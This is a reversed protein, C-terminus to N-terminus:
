RPKLEDHASNIKQHIDFIKRQLSPDNNLNSAIKQYAHSTTAPSRGGLEKGVAALSCNTEQRILYMAVQRALVIAEDRKRSRLDTPTLQFSNVVAEIILGPTIAAKKPEDGNLNQLAQAALDPSLMARMLKAYAVVRNLAGELTRINEQIQLAIFELVDPSVNLGKQKTKAQLIALRTEFDAPQIDTVLGCEFRSRLQDSLVPISKPPRDSTIAIQRGTSHLEKFTHLFNESTQEKGGFFQIDDVLLMDASRYKARFDETKRERIANTLENTFQEASAYLVRLNQVLAMQGIAQLLHTKGVGAGGYIFLPNYNNGPKEAVQRAAAYALQNCIGVIFSDFTYRPNFLPLSAQQSPISKTRSGSASPSSQYNGDIQFEVQVEHNLLGTLTKEILSRQNKDLYEAIFTNPVGIVFQGDQCRLGETKELWTRYNSKNVQIQLEGLAAEWIQQATRAEAM